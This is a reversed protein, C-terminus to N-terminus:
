RRPQDTESFPNNRAAFSSYSARDARARERRSQELLLGDANETPTHRRRLLVVILLLAALGMLGLVTLITAM